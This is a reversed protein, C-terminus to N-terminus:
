IWDSVKYDNPKLFLGLYKLGCELHAISIGFVDGLREVKEAELNNYLLCSKHCNVEM